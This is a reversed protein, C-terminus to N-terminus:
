TKGVKIMSLRSDIQVEWRMADSHNNIVLDAWECKQSLPWQAKIRAQAEATSLGDRKKLRDLQQEPSCDVVWIESCLETLAAEFLLPIMLVVTMCQERSALEQEFRTRVCPHILGELWRREERNNFVIQGLKHRDITRACPSGKPICEEEAEVRAGYRALVVEAGKSGTALAEHAYIDADLVPIGNLALYRAVSSKGSAIGGTLGIRRQLGQWRHEGSLPYPEM